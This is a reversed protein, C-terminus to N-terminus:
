QGFIEDLTKKDGGGVVNGYPTLYKDPDLGGITMYNRYEFLRQDHKIKSAGLFKGGMFVLAERDSQTLGAGGALMKRVKGEVKRWTAIDHATRLYESERVVSEPDTMKNFLTILAQDVAVFNNTTKSETLAANMVEYKQRMDVYTKAEPMQNFEKRLSMGDKNQQATVKRNDAATQDAMAKAYPSAEKKEKMWQLRRKVYQPTGRMKPTEKGFVTLEFERMLSPTNSSKNKGVGKIWEALSGVFPPDQKKAYEYEKIDDSTAGVSGPIQTIKGEPSTQFWGDADKYQAPTGWKKQTAKFYKGVLPAHVAGEKDVTTQQIKGELELLRYEHERANKKAELLLDAQKMKQTQADKKMAWAMIGQEM